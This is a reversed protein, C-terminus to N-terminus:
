TVLTLTVSLQCPEPQHPGRDLSAQGRLIKGQQKCPSSKNRDDLIQSDIVEGRGLCGLRPQTNNRFTDCSRPSTLKCVRSSRRTRWVRSSRRTRWVLSPIQSKPSSSNRRTRWVLRSRTSADLQPLLNTLDIELHVQNLLVVVITTPSTVLKVLRRASYLAWDVGEM